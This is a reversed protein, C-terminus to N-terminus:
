STMCQPDVGLLLAIGAIIILGIIGGGGGQGMPFQSDAAAEERSFFHLDAGALM